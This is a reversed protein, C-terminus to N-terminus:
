AEEGRAHLAHSVFFKIPTAGLKFEDDKPEAKVVKPATSPPPSTKNAAGVKSTSGPPTLSKRAAMAPHIAPLSSATSASALLSSRSTCAPLFSSPRSFLATKPSLTKDKRMTEQV